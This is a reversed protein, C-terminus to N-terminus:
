ENRTAAGFVGDVTEVGSQVDAALVQLASSCVSAFSQAEADVADRDSEAIVTPTCHPPNHAVDSRSSAIFTVEGSCVFFM